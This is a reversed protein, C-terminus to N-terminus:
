GRRRRQACIAEGGGPPPGAAAGPGRQRVPRAPRPGLPRFRGGERRRSGPSSPTKGPTETICCPCGGGRGPFGRQAAPVELRAAGGSPLAVGPLGGRHCGGGVAAGGRHCGGGMAAAPSGWACAAPCTCVCWARRPPCVPPRPRAPAPPSGHLLGLEAGGLPVSRSVGAAGCAVRQAAVPERTAALPAPHGSAGGALPAAQADRAGAARDRRACRRPLGPCPRRGAAGSGGVHRGAGM